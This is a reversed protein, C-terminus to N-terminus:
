AAKIVDINTVANDPLVIFPTDGMVAVLAARLDNLRDQDWVWVEDVRFVVKDGPKLSLVTADIKGIQM